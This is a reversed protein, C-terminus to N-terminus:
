RTSTGSRSGAFAATCALALAGAVMVALSYTGGGLSVAFLSLALGGIQQIVGLWASAQGAMVAFPRMAIAIAQPQSLGWGIYFPLIGMLIGTWATGGAAVVLLCAVTGLVTLVGGALLIHSGALRTSLRASLLGGSV